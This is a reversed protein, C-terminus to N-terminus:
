KSILVSSTKSWSSCYINKGSGVYACIQVYYKKGKVLGSCSASLTSNKKITKTKVNKAFKNDTSYRIIYGNAVSNKKWSIKMKKGTQNKVSSITTGNPKIAVKIKRSVANCNATEKSKITVTAVGAYKAKVTVKGNKDVAIKKNNSSYELKAKDLHSVGLKFSQAKSSYKKIIDKAVIPNSSKKIEFEINKEGQYLEGTFSVCVLATGANKNNKFAVTYNTGSTDQKPIVKGEGNKIVLKPSHEKADYEFSKQSLMFESPRSIVYSDSIKEGCQSCVVSALGDEELSAKKEVRVTQASEPHECSKLCIMPRIGYFTEYVLHDGGFMYTSKKSTMMAVCRHSGGGPTRTLWEPLKAGSTIYLGNAKAYDTGTSNSDNARIYPEYMGERVGLWLEHHTLLTVKDNMDGSAYWSNVEDEDEKYLREEIEAAESSSFAINYFTDNLWKRLSSYEYISAYHDKSRDTYFGREESDYYYSDQFPQSDIIADCVYLHEKADVLVWPLPEYKFWYVNHIEYGNDDQRSWSKASSDTPDQTTRIQRYQNFKVARYKDGNYSLDYYKMDLTKDTMENGDGIPYGFSIWNKNWDLNKIQNNLETLLASDKVESQPYSGFSIRTGAQDGLEDARVQNIPSITTLIMALLLSLTVIKKSIKGM